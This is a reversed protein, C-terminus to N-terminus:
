AWWPAAPWAAHWRSEARTSFRPGNIVVLTGGDVPRVDADAAGLVAARGRPCYPDAFASTCWGVRARPLGHAETGLHPRDGPRAGRVHGPGPRSAALRGCGAGAGAPRRRQAAGVPEGPLQGPATPVPSAARTAPRVGGTRGAVEGVTLPASPSGFPTSPLVTTANSLFQYFGTGGIIGIEADM